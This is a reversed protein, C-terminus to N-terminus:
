SSSDGIGGDTSSSHHSFSSAGDRGTADARLLGSRTSCSQSSSLSSLTSCCTAPESEMRTTPSFIVDTLSSGTGATKLSCKAAAAPRRRTHMSKGPLRRVTTGANSRHYFHVRLTKCKISTTLQRSARVGSGSSRNYRRLLGKDLSNVYAPYTVAEFAPADTTGAPHKRGAVGCAVVQHATEVADGRRSRHGLLIPEQGTPVGHGMAARVVRPQPPRGILPHSQRVPAQGDDIQALGTMLGHALGGVAVPDDEVALDVVM